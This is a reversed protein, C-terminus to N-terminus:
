SRKLNRWVGIHHQMWGEPIRVKRAEMEVTKLNQNRGAKLFTILPTELSLWTRWYWKVKGDM